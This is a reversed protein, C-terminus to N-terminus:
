SQALVDAVKKEEQRTLKFSQPADLMVKTRPGDGELRILIRMSEGGHEVLIEQQWNPKMALVLVDAEKRGQLPLM